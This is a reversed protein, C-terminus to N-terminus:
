TGVDLIELNTFYEVGTIDKIQLAAIITKIDDSSIDLQDGKM